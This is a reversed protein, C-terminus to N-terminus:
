LDEQRRGVLALYAIILLMLLAAVLWKIPAPVSSPSWFGEIAAAILLMMGAGLMLRALEPAHRQLSGIRTYGETAVLAYGMRLGAQGSILIATLEFTGHGCMFTLINGAYGAQAVHGIMTGIMLGNYVLFFLSGTGFLIGTSFCRFAIGVNNYVYFGAMSADLGESRGAEFGTSYNAAAQELVNAPLVSTAFELSRLAGLGGM